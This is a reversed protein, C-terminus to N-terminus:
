KKIDKIPIYFINNPFNVAWNVVLTLTNIIQKEKWKVTMKM